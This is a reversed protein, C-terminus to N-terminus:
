KKLNLYMYIHVYVVHIDSKQQTEKLAEHRWQATAAIAANVCQRVEECRDRVSSHRWQKTEDHEREWGEFEDELLSLNSLRLRLLFM